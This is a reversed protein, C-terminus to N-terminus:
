LLVDVPLGIPTRAHPGAVLAAVNMSSWLEKPLPKISRWLRRNALTARRYARPDYLDSSKLDERFLSSACLYGYLLRYKDDQSETLVADPRTPLYSLALKHLKWAADGGRCVASALNRAINAACRYEWGSPGQLKGTEDVYMPLGLGGWQESIFYPIGKLEKLATMNHSIFARMMRDRLHTPGLRLLEHAKAGLSEEPNVIEKPDVPGGARKLGKILGLNVYKVRFYPGRDISVDQELGAVMAGFYNPMSSDERRENYLFSTSNINLYSKSFYTKGVSEQLGIFSTCIRWLSYGLRTTKCVIDDGNFLARLQKFPIRKGVAQEM